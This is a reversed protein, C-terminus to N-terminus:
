AECEWCLCRGEKLCRDGWLILEETAEWSLCPDTISIGYQLATELNPHSQNGEFLNSEIVVGRIAEEGELYQHLTSKFVDFQKQHDRQCNDHSCDVIIRLPLHSKKLLDKAFGISKTDYNPAQKGGRLVIHPAINGATKWQKLEGSLDPALYSHPISSVLAGNVAQQIEGCTSNKFGIAMPLGSALQRHPPSSSTRAGICGWSILDSFYVSLLPDLFETAAPIQMIALQKLLQRTLRLGEEMRDSGDLFPDYLLGKWGLSTRSKEVYVRMAILFSDNVLPTLRGVKEAYELALDIDHISCPGLILLLRPDKQDLVQKIEQRAKQIFSAQEPELVVQQMLEEPTPIKCSNSYFNPSM